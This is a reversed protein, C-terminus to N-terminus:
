RYITTVDQTNGVSSVTGQYESTQGDVLVRVTYAVPDSSVCMQYYNVRVQYTGHPASGTPWFINEVPHSTQEECRPNADVDLKGGSVSQTHDFFIMEGSPDVVWLDLDDFTNWQLTVQIDGSGLSQISIVTPTTTPPRTPTVTSPAVTTTATLTPTPTPVPPLWVPRTFYAALALLILLLIVWWYNCVYCVPREWWEERM